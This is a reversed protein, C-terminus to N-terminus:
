VGAADRAARRDQPEGRGGARRGGGYPRRSHGHRTAGHRTWGAPRRGRSRRRDAAGGGAHGAVDAGRRSMMLQEGVWQNFQGISLVLGGSKHLFAPTYPLEVAHLGDQAFRRAISDALRLPTSRRSAGMRTSCTCCRRRAAGAGGDPDAVRGSRSLVAPHRAGEDCGRVRRFGLRRRTRLLDSAATREHKALAPALTTLFGGMAPGFGACVIDVDMSLREGM